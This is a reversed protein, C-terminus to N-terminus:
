ALDVVRSGPVGEHARRDYTAGMSSRGITQIRVAGDALRFQDIRDHRGGSSGVEGSARM